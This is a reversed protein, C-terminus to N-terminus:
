ITAMLALILAWVAFAAASVCYTAPRNAAYFEDSTRYM